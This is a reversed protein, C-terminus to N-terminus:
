YIFLKCSNTRFGYNKLYSTYNTIRVKLVTEPCRIYTTVNTNGNLPVGLVGPNPLQFLLCTFLLWFRDINTHLVHNEPEYLSIIVSKIGHLHM